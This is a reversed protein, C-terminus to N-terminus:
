LVHTYLTVRTVNSPLANLRAFCTIGLKDLLRYLERIVMKRVCYSQPVFFLQKNKVYVLYSFNQVIYM